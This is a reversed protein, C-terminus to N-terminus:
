SLTMIPVFMFVFPFKFTELQTFILCAFLTNKHFSWWRDKKYMTTRYSYCQNYGEQCSSPLKSLRIDHWPLVIFTPTLLPRPTYSLYSYLMRICYFLLTIVNSFLHQLYEPYQRPHSSALISWAAAHLTLLLPDFYMTAGFLLGISSNYFHVSLFM